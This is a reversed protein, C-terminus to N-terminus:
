EKPMSLTKVYDNIRTNLAERNLGAPVEVRVTETRGLNFVDVEAVQKGTSEYKAPNLPDPVERMDYVNKMAWGQRQLEEPSIAPAAQGEVPSLVLANPQPGYKPIPEKTYKFVRSRGQPNQPMVWNADPNEPSFIFQMETNANLLATNYYLRQIVYPQNPSNTVAALRIPTVRFADALPRFAAIAGIVNNSIAGPNGNVGLNADIFSGALIDSFSKGAMARISGMYNVYESDSVRDSRVPRGFYFTNGAVELNAKALSYGIAASLSPREDRFDVEIKSGDEQWVTQGTSDVLVSRCNPLTKGASDRLFFYSLEDAELKASDYAWRSRDSADQPLTPIKKEFNYHWLGGAEHWGAYLAVGRIAATAMNAAYAIAMKELATSDKTNKGFAAQIGGSIGNIFLNSRVQSLSNQFVLDTKSTNALGLSERLSMTPLRNGDPLIGKMKKEEAIRLESIVMNSMYEVNTMEYRSKIAAERALGKDYESLNAWQGQLMRAQMVQEDTMQEPKVNVWQFNLGPIEGGFKEKYLEIQAELNPRKKAEEEVQFVKEVQPIMYQGLGTQLVYDKYNIRNAVVYAKGGAYLSPKVGYIDAINQFIPQTVGQVLGKILPVLYQKKEGVNETAAISLGQSLLTPWQDFTKVVAARFFHPEAPHLETVTILEGSPGGQQKMFNPSGFQARFEDQTLTAGTQDGGGLVNKSTDSIETSTDSIETYTYTKTKPNFEYKYVGVPSAAHNFLERGFGTAMMGTTMGAIQGVASPNKGADIRKKDIAYITLGEATGELMGVAAGKLLTSFQTPDVPTKIPIGAYTPVFGNKTPMDLAIEPNLFSSTASTAITSVLYTTSPKWGYYAGMAGIARGAQSTAVVTGFGSTMGGLSLSNGLSSGMGSIGKGAVGAKLAGGIVMCGLSMGLSLAIDGSDLKEIKAGGSRTRYAFAQSPSFSSFLLACILGASIIKFIKEKKKAWYMKRVWKASSRLEGKTNSAKALSM